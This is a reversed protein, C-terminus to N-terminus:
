LQYIIMMINAIEDETFIIHFAKEAPRLIKLLKQYEKGYQELIMKKRPNSVPPQESGLRDICCALHIFLGVETDTSLNEIKEKIETMLQPLVKQLKIMNTNTLQEKLYQFVADYDVTEKKVRGQMLLQPLKEKQVGFIESISLFPISYLNPNFTGILCQIEGTKMRNKLEEKLVDKDAIALPIIETDRLKGYQEIYNKLEEAGGKGTTCLTIIMKKRRGGVFNTERMVDQCIQDVNEERMTKRLLSIGMSIVPMQISRIRISLEEELEMLMDALFDSDYVVIVGQGQEIKQIFQKLNEYFDTDERKYTLEYSYIHDLQTFGSIAKVMNEAIGEGYFAFLIVPKGQIPQRIDQHTLFMTFLLVEELPIEREYEKGLTKAFEVCLLYEKKYHLILETVQLQDIKQSTGKRELMKKIHLCLGYFISNPFVRELQVSAEQLFNEVLDIIKQDVLILLQEKNIVEHVLKDQYQYFSHEVDTSLILNIEQEELGSERLQAAKRNIEEYVNDDAAEKSIEQEVGDGHFYYNCDSKVLSDIEQKQLQYRLIGKRVYHEFDTLFLQLEEQKRYERVYANACGIKIDTELQICDAECEYLMLCRFVDPTLVLTRSISAAEKAFFLQIMEKRESLPREKLAPLELLIPFEAIFAENQEQKKDTCSAIVMPGNSQNMKEILRTRVRGSLVQVNDLFLIGNEAADFIGQNQEYGFLDEMMRKEDVYEKCNWEIFPANGAIVGETVAYQHILKAFMKKGTGKVGFLIANLSKGPYLVAAKALQIVHKLSGECGIVKSFCDEKEAEDELVFYRVPRGNTKQIRGEKVLENLMSSVNTRQLSMVKAIYSTSIGKQETVAGHLKIFDYVKEKKQKMRIVMGEM